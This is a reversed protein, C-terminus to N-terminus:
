KSSNIRAKREREDPNEVPLNAFMQLKVLGNMIISIADQRAAAMSKAEENPLSRWDIGFMFIDNQMEEVPLDYVTPLFLKRLTTIALPNKLFTARIWEMEADSLYKDPEYNLVDKLRAPQQQNSM